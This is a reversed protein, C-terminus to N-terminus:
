KKGPLKLGIIYIGPIVMRVWLDSGINQITTSLHRVLIIGHINTRHPKRDRVLRHLSWFFESFTEQCVSKGLTIIGSVELVCACFLLSLMFLAVAGM